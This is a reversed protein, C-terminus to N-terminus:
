SHESLADLAMHCVPSLVGDMDYNRSLPFIVSASQAFGIGSLWFSSLSLGDISNGVLLGMRRLCGIHCLASKTCVDSLWEQHAIPAGRHRIASTPHMNPPRCCLAVVIMTSGSSAPFHILRRTVAKVEVLAHARMAALGSEEPQNGIVGDACIISDNGAITYSCQLVLALSIRPHVYSLGIEM